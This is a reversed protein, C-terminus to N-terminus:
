NKDKEVILKSLKPSIGYLECVVSDSVGEDSLEPPLVMRVGTVCLRGFASGGIRIVGGEFSNVPIEEGEAVLIDCQNSKIKETQVVSIGTEKFFDEAAKARRGSRKGYLYIESIYDAATKMNDLLKEGYIGSYIGLRLRGKKIGMSRALKMATQPALSILLKEEKILSFLSKNLYEEYKKEVASVASLRVRNKLLLRELAKRNARGGTYIHLVRIGGFEKIESKFIGLSSKVSSFLDEHGFHIVARINVM